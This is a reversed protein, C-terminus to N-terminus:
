IGSQGPKLSMMSAIWELEYFAYNDNNTDFSMLSKYKQLSLWEDTFYIGYKM